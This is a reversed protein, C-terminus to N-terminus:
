EKGEWKPCSDNEQVIFRNKDCQNAKLLKNYYRCDACRGLKAWATLVEKCSGKPSKVRCFLRAPCTDCSLDVILRDLNTQM